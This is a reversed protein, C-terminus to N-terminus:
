DNYSITWLVLLMVSNSRPHGMGSIIYMRYHHDMLAIDTMFYGNPGFDIYCVCKVMNNLKYLLGMAMIGYM